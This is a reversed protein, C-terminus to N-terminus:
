RWPRGGQQVVVGVLVVALILVVIIGALALLLPDIRTRRHIIPRM